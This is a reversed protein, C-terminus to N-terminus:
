ELITTIDGSANKDFLFMQILIAIIYCTPIGVALFILFKTITSGLDKKEAM